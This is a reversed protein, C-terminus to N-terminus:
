EDEDDDDDEANEKQDEDGSEEEDGEEAEGFVLSEKQDEEDSDEDDDDDDVEEKDEDTEEKNEEVTDELEDEKDEDAAEKSEEVTDDLEDDDDDSKDDDEKEETEKAVEADNDDESDDEDNEETEKVVKIKKEGTKEENDDKKAKRKEAKKKQVDKKNETNKAYLVTIKHGNVSLDQAADFAAKADAASSFQVFGFSTGKRRSKQPIEATGAKPFMEKLNSRTVGPALGVVFLRTPNLEKDSGSKKQKSKAGVFDVFVQKGKYETTALKEKASKCTEEDIFEVFAFRIGDKGGKKTALRPARVFKIDSHLEQINEVSPPFKDSFRIYLTRADQVKKRQEVDDTAIETAAVKIADVASKKLQKQKKQKLSTKSKISLKDEAKKEGEKKPTNKVGM